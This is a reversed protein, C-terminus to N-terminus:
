GDSPAREPVHGMKSTLDVKAALAEQRESVLKVVLICAGAAIANLVASLGATWLSFDDMRSTVRDLVITAIWMAWWFNVVPPITGTIWDSGYESDVPVDPDSARVIEQMAQYPKFLNALPIFWWGVAWGPTFQLGTRGFRRLNQAARHMWMCFFVVNLVWLLTVAGGIAGVLALASGPSGESFFATLKGTEFLWVVWASFFGIGAQLALFVSVVKMLSQLSKPKM